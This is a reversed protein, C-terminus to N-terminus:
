APEATSARQPVVEGQLGCHAFRQEGGYHEGEGTGQASEGDCCGELDRGSDVRIRRGVGGMGSTHVYQVDGAVALGDVADGIDRGPGALVRGHHQQM